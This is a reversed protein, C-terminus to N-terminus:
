SLNLYHFLESIIFLLVGSTILAVQVQHNRRLRKPDSTWANQENLALRLIRWENWGVIGFCVASLSALLISLLEWNGMGM